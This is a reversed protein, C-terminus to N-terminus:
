AAGLQKRFDAVAGAADRFLSDGDGLLLARWTRALLPALDKVAAARDSLKPDPLLRLEGSVHSRVIDGFVVAELPRLEFAAEFESKGGHVWHVALADGLEAPLEADPALWLDVEAAAAGLRERECAPAALRASFEAKLEPAARLHDANTLLIWAAGGSEAVQARQEASLPMPDFLLGPRAGEARWYFGNFDIRRDAQYESWTLVGPLRTDKM